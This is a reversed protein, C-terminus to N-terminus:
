KDGDKYVRIDDIKFVLDKGGTDYIRVFNVAAFDTEGGTINGDKFALDVHNWGSELEITGLRWMTENTDAKSGSTIEIQGSAAVLSPDDIYLWMYLHGNDKVANVDTSEFVKQFKVVGTGTAMLCGSGEQNDINDLSLVAGSAWGDTDDCADLQLGVGEDPVLQSNDIHIMFTESYNRKSENADTYAGIRFYYDTDDKLNATSFNFSYELGDNRYAEIKISSIQNKIYYSVNESTSAYMEVRMLRSFVEPKVFVTVKVKGAVKDYDYKLDKFRIFPKAVFNYTTADKIQITDAMAAFNCRTASIAYTGEFLNNEQYSGDSKFNLARTQKGDPSYNLQTLDIESGQIPEQFIPEGTLYDIAMGRLTSDPRSYNDIQCSSLIALSLLAAIHHRKM